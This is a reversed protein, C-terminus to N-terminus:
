YSQKGKLEIYKVKHMIFVLVSFPDMLKVLEDLACFLHLNNQMYWFLLGTLASIKAKKGWM